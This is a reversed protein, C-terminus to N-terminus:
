TARTGTALDLLRPRELPDDLLEVPPRGLVPHIRAFWAAVGPGTFVYRLQNAVEAVTRIRAEDNGLPTPGDEVLWRQMQRVSAGLLTALEPQSVSVIAVLHRLVEKVPVDASVHATDVADRVAQRVQELAVRLDARRARANDHRLAKLSRLAGAYIASALYPDVHLDTPSGAHLRDALEEVFSEVAPSVDRSSRLDATAQDAASLVQDLSMALTTSM